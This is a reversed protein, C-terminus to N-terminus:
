APAHLPHEVNRTGNKRRFTAPPMGRHRHFLTTFYHVDSYGVAHAIEKVSLRRELLLAAAREMRFATLYDLISVGMVARFLRETHRESLHVQAAVDRVTLPRGANDRLYTAIRQATRQAPTTHPLPLELATAPLDVVARCTDLLLKCALADIAQLYGPRPHAIEEELLHLTLPVASGARGVVERATGFAALLADVPSNAEGDRPVLTYAWFAIGLPDPGEALIEHADQPRAIFLDGAVVPLDAGGTRFTGSGAYAYCVEYFSHTHLYNRWPRPDIHGWNLFEGGYGGLTFPLPIRNLSTIRSNISRDHM